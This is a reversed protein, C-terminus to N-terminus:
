LCVAVGSHGQLSRLFRWLIRATAGWIARQGDIRFVPYMFSGTGSKGWYLEPPMHLRDLCVVFASEIEVPDPRIRRKVEEFEIRAVIPYIVFDSSYAYEKPLMGLVRFMGPELATEEHCERLATDLPTGDGAERAGGPFALQGAHRRMSVSREVCLVSPRGDVETYGVVVASQRARADDLDQWPPACGCSRSAGGPTETLLSGEVQLSPWERLIIDGSDM